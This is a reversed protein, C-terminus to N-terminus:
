EYFDIITYDTNSSLKAAVIKTCNGRGQMSWYAGSVTQGKLVTITISVIRGDPLKVELDVKTSENVIEYINM